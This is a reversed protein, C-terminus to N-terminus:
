EGPGLDPRLFTYIRDAVQEHGAETYHCHDYFLGGRGERTATRLTPLLDLLPIGLARGREAIRRQPYDNTPDAEVQAATPFVVIRLAFEERQAMSSLTELSATIPEWAADSWLSGWEHANELIEARLEPDMEVGSADWSDLRERVEDRWRDFVAEPLDSYRHNRSLFRDLDAYIRQVLWSDALRSPPLLRPRSCCPSADNLYFGLVVLDPETALGVERLLELEEALSAGPLGANVVDLRLGDARGRTEIRRVFTEDDDVGFGATISDGLFLVRSVRKPGLDPGRLGLANTEIRYPRGASKDRVVDVRAHPRLRVGNESEVFLSPIAAGDRDQLRVVMRPPDLLRVAAEVVAFALLIGATLLLARSAVRSLLAPGRAPSPTSDRGPKSQIRVHDRQM